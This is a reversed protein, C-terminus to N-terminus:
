RRKKKKSQLYRVVFALTLVFALIYGVAGLVPIGLIKPAMNTTCIISSSILLAAILVGTVLHRSVSYLTRNLDDTSHLDLNIRTQGHTYSHLLDAIYSPIKIGKHLAQYLDKGNERLAKKLDFNERRSEALRVAAVQILSIDPAIEAMVGEITTLGRVLMTLSAPMGM